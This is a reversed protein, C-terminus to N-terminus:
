MSPIVVGAAEADEGGEPSPIGEKASESEPPYLLLDFSAEYM